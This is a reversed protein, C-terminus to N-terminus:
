EEDESKLDDASMTVVDTIAQARARLDALTVPDAEGGEWSLQLWRQKNEEALHTLEAFVARTVPHAKWAEFDDESIM